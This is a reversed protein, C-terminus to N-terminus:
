CVKRMGKVFMSSCMLWMHAALAVADIGERKLQGSLSFPTFLLKSPDSLLATASVKLLRVMEFGGAIGAADDHAQVVSIQLASLLACRVKLVSSLTQQAQDQETVAADRCIQRRCPKCSLSHVM